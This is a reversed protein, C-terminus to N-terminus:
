RRGRSLAQRNLQQAVNGSQGTGDDIIEYAVPIVIPQIQQQALDVASTLNKTLTEADIQIKMKLPQEPNNVAKELQSKIGAEDIQPTQPQLNQFPKENDPTVRQNIIDLRQQELRIKLSDAESKQRFQESSSLEENAGILNLTADNAAQMARTYTSISIAGSDLLSKYKAQEEALKEVPTRMQETLRLGERLIEQRQKEATTQEKTKETETEPKQTGIFGTIAEPTPAAQQPAQAPLSKSREESIKKVLEFRQNLLDNLEKEKAPILQSGFGTGGQLDKLSERTKNIRRDIVDIEGELGTKLGVSEKFTDLLGLWSGRLIGTKEINESFLKSTRILPEIIGLGFQVQLGQLTKSLVSLQDNFEGSLRAQETTIGTLGEGKRALERLEDGTMSLLPAVEAYAKGLAKAGVAARTQPDEISSFVDALQIFAELPDKANIGLAAFSEQNKAINISLKNLSSAFAETTTDGLEIALKFKSLNEVSVGTRDSLDNLADAADIGNKVFSTFSAVSLGTGLAKFISNINGTVQEAKKEFKGLDSSIKDIQNSLKGVQANFDIDIGFAM